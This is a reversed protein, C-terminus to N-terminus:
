AVAGGILRYREFVVGGGDDLKPLVVAPPHFEEGFGAAVVM